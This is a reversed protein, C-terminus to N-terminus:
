TYASLRGPTRRSSSATRGGPYGLEVLVPMTFGPGFLSPRRAALGAASVTVDPAPVGFGKEVGTIPRERLETIAATVRPTLVQTM